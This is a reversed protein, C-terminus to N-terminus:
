FQLSLLANLESRFLFYQMYNTLSNVKVHLFKLNYKLLSPLFNYGVGGTWFFNFLYIFLACTCLLKRLFKPNDQDPSVKVYSSDARLIFLRM